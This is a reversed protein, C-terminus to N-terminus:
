SRARRLVILAAALGAAAALPRPVLRIVALADAPDLEVAAPWAGMHGEVVIRGRAMRLREPTYPFRGVPSDIRM